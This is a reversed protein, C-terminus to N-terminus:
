FVCRFVYSRAPKSWLRPAMRLKVLTELALSVGDDPMCGTEDLDHILGCIAKDSYIPEPGEDTLDYVVLRVTYSGIDIMAVQKVGTLLTESYTM